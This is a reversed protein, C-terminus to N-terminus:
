YSLLGEVSSIVSKLSDQIDENQAEELKKFDKLKCLFTKSSNRIESNLAPNKRDLEKQIIDNVENYSQTVTDFEEWEEKVNSCSASLCVMGMSINLGKMILSIGNLISEAETKKNM